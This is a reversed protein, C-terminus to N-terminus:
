SSSSGTWPAGRDRPQVEGSCCPTSHTYWVRPPCNLACLRAICDNGPAPLSRTSALKGSAEVLLRARGGLDKTHWSGARGAPVLRVHALHGFGQDDLHDGCLSGRNKRLANTTVCPATWVNVGWAQNSPQRRSSWCSAALYRPAGGWPARLEPEDLSLWTASPSSRLAARLAHKACWRGDGAVGQRM